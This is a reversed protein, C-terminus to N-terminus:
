YVVGDSWLSYPSIPTEGVTCILYIGSGTTFGTDGSKGVAQGGKVTDGVNVSIESLHCYWTRLGLGHDIIVYNGLFANNAAAIVMGNNLAPADTGKYVMFDVGDMLYTQGDSLTRTHGYGLLIIAGISSSERYDIFKGDFYKTDSRKQGIQRLLTAYEGRATDGYAKAILDSGADYTRTLRSREELTVTFTEEAGKTSVKLQYTGVALSAHFPILARVGDGDEYFTPTCGLDPTASFAIDDPSAANLVQIALYDGVTAKTASISFAPKASYNIHFQYKAEGYYDVYDSKLWTAEVTVSLQVSDEFSVGQFDRYSGEYIAASGNYIKVTAEDPETSFRLSINKNVSYMTEESSAALDTVENYHKRDVKHLWQIYYPTIENGSVTLTPVALTEHTEGFFFHRLFLGMDEQPVEYCVNAYEDVLYSSGEVEYYCLYNRDRNAIRATVTYDADPMEQATRVAEGKELMGSLLAALEMNNEEGASGRFVEKGAADQATIVTTDGKLTSQWNGMAAYNAIAIYTPIFMALVALTGLIVNRVHKSM